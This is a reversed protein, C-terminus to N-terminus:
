PVPRMEVKVGLHGASWALTIEVRNRRELARQFPRVSNEENGIEPFMAAPLSFKGLAFVDGIRALGGTDGTDYEGREKRDALGGFPTQGIDRM